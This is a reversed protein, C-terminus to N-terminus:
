GASAPPRADVHPVPRGTELARRIDREHLMTHRYVLKLMDELVAQGFWPHRGTRELDAESLDRAMAVTVARAVEFQRILEAPAVEGLGAVQAANFDDIVLGEPAGQGGALVQRVYYVVTRETSLFHALVDRVRWRPGTEYVPKSFDAEALTHFFAGTKQGEDILRRVILEQRDPM